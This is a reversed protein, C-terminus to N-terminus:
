KGEGGMNIQSKSGSNTDIMERFAELRTRMQSGGVTREVEVSLVPIGKSQLQEIIFPRDMQTPDCWKQVAVIVGDGNYRQYQNLLHEVRREAVRESSMCCCPTRELKQRAMAELPPLNEDVLDWFYRSGQCLDDGVVMCDLEEALAFFEQGPLITGEVLLRSGSFPKVERQAAEVILERLVKNAEEKPVSVAYEMIESVEVGTILPTGGAGRLDYIEKLLQKHENYLRIAASLDEDSLSCHLSERLSRMFSDLEAMYFTLAGAAQSNHPIHLFNKYEKPVTEMLIQFLNCGGECGYAYVLGDLHEYEGALGLELISRGYHCMFTSQYQNAEEIDIPAGLFKVPFVNAASLIEEPFNHCMYGFVKKGKKRWDAIAPNDKISTSYGSRIQKMTEEFM